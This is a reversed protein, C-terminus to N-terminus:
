ADASQKLWAHVTWGDIVLRPVALVYPEVRFEEYSSGVSM